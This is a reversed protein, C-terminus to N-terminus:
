PIMSEVKWIVQLSHDGAHIVRPNANLTFEFDNTSLSRAGADSSVVETFAAASLTGVKGAGHQWEGASWHIDTALWTPAGPAPTIFSDTAAKLYLKMQQTARSLVMGKLEISVPTSSADIRTDAVQFGITAPVTLLYQESVHVVMTSTAANENAGGALTVSGAYLCVPLLCLITILLMLRILM